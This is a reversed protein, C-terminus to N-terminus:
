RAAHDGQRIGRGDREEEVFTQVARYVAEVMDAAAVRGAPKGRIFLLGFGTGGALGVDAERAEGPGNVACGMVAVRVPYDIDAIRQEVARAVRVLDIECRGCSPCAIVVAGGQRLGLSKLVEHGVRIERVPSAALSVRLTDGIGRALLAGLGVASKVTGAFATGAETIGLHLPYDVQSALLEYAEVTQMVDSSKLSVVIERFDLDELIRIHSLASEVMAEPTRGLRALLHKELSGANVGIRIPVGRAKAERVVRRVREPAGVNGPNLRLKDVGAELALLALRYDFHIDAVLALGPLRRRIERLALAAERDPVALRLIEGGARAMAKLQRVTAAVDRTDTKAMGQVSIPAAGGVTMRGVRVPRSVRRTLM